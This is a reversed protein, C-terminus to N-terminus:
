LGFRGALTIVRANLADMTLQDNYLVIDAAARRRRRSAQSAIIAEIASRELANRAMVRAIQTETPCDVVIVADLIRPWHTSEVLLPIDFVLLRKGIAQAARAQAETVEAVLPHIIAELQKRSDPQSFARERMRSRDLAGSSDVFEPGFAQAIAAMALGGPATLERAIQDADILAAGRDALLRGVTSKGSGIGGTLGVRWSIKAPADNM